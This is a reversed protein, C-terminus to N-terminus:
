QLGVAGDHQTLDAIEFFLFVGLAPIPQQLNEMADNVRCDVKDVTQWGGCM